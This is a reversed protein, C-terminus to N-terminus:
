SPESELRRAHPGCKARGRPVSGGAVRLGMEVGSLTGMLQLDGFDGLHGIRFARDQIQGLGTGLSMNFRELIIRRLKDAFVRAREGFGVERLGIDIRTQALQKHTAVILQRAELMLAAARASRM